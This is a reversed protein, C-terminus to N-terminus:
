VFVEKGVHYRYRNSQYMGKKDKERWCTTHCTRYDWIGSQGFADQLMEANDQKHVYDPCRICKSDMNEEECSFLCPKEVGHPVLFPAVGSGCYQGIGQRFKKNTM